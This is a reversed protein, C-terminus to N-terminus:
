WQFMCFGTCSKVGYKKVFLRFEGADSNSTGVNQFMRDTGDEDGLLFCVVNLVHPLKFDLVISNFYV